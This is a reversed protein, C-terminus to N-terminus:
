RGGLAAKVRDLMRRRTADDPAALLASRVELVTQAYENHWDRGSALAARLEDDARRREPPLKEVSIDGASRRLVFREDLQPVHIRAPDAGGEV